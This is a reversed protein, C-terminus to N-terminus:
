FKMLQDNLRNARVTREIHGQWAGRWWKAEARWFGAGSRQEFRTEDIGSDAFNRHGNPGTPRFLHEIKGVTGNPELHDKRSLCRFRSLSDM